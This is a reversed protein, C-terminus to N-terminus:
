DSVPPVTTEEASKNSIEYSIGSSIKGQEDLSGSSPYVNSFNEGTQYSKSQKALMDLDNVTIKGTFLSNGQEDVECGIDSYLTEPITKSAITELNVVQSPRITLMNKIDLLRDEFFFLQAYKKNNMQLNKQDILNKTETIKSKTGVLWYHVLAYSCVGLLLIFVGLFLSLSGGSSRNERIGGAKLNIQKM